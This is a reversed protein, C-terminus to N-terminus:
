CTSDLSISLTPALCDGQNRTYINRPAGKGQIILTLSNGSKWTDQHIVEEIIDKLNPSVWVQGSEWDEDGDEETWIVASNTTNRENPLVVSNYLPSSDSSYEARITVLAAGSSISFGFVQLHVSKIKDMESLTVETFRIAITQDSQTLSLTKRDHFTESGIQQTDEEAGLEFFRPECGSSPEPDVFSDSLVPRLITFTDWITGSVDKFQCIASATDVTCLLAGYGVGNDSSACKAWWSNLQLNNKWPRISLGGLGTVAVFSRGKTLQLTNIQKPSVATRSAFNSMLVSREYSHEHATMVVAGYRRCSDM